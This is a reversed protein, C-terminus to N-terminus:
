IIVKALLGIVGTAIIVKIPVVNPTSHTNAILAVLAILCLLLGIRVLMDIM